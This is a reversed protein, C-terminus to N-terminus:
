RMGHSSRAHQDHEIKTKFTGGCAACKFQPAMHAKQAHAQLEGATNFTGGCAPCKLQDAM